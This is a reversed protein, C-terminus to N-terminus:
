FVEEFPINTSPYVEKDNHYFQGFMGQDLWLIELRYKDGEMGGIARLQRDLGGLNFTRDHLDTVAIDNRKEYRHLIYFQGGPNKLALCISAKERDPNGSADMYPYGCFLSVFAYHGFSSTSIGILLLFIFHKM